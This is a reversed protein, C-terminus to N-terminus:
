NKNRVKALRLACHRQHIIFPCRLVLAFFVLGYDCLNYWTKASAARFLTTNIHGSAKYFRARCGDDNRIASVTYGLNQATPGDM